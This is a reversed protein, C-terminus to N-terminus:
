RGPFLKGKNKYILDALCESQLDSFVEAEDDLLLMPLVLDSRKTDSCTAKKALVLRAIYRTTCIQARKKSNPGLAKFEPPAIQVERLAKFDTPGLVFSNGAVECTVDRDSIDPQPKPSSTQAITPSV